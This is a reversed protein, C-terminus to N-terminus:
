IVHLKGIFILPISQLSLTYAFTSMCADVLLFKSTISESQFFYNIYIIVGNCSQTCQM